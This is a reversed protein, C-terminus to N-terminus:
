LDPVQNAKDDNTSSAWAPTASYEGKMSDPVPFNGKEWAELYWDPCYDLEYGYRVFIEEGKAIFHKSAICPITGFRPHSFVMFESNPLFSHNTKHALSASYNVLKRFKEPIDVTGDEVAPDFIKYGNQDWSEADATKPRVKRGHYFALVTNPQIDKRAFLGENAGPVRSTLVQVTSSEYPDPLNPSDTVFDYTSLERRYLNGDPTAFQPVKICFNDTTVKIVKSAQGGVLVGDKFNGVLATNFDPYIYAINMGTLEGEEDVVGVVCGGGRVIKWCTGFAKGNRYMGVFSLSNKGDFHRCFGHLVGDKFFGELWTDNTFYVRAKGNLVGDKYEGQIFYVSGTRSEVKFDGHRIGHLFHGMIFSGDEMELSGKGHFNRKADKGGSYTFDLKKLDPFPELTPSGYVVGSQYVGIKIDKFQELGINGSCKMKKVWQDLERTCRDELSEGRVYIDNGLRDKVVCKEKEEPVPTPPPTPEKCGQTSSTRFQRRRREERRLRFDLATIGVKKSEGTEEPAPQPSEQSKQVRSLILSADYYSNRTRASTGLNYVTVSPYLTLSCPM